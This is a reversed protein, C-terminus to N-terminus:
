PTPGQFRSGLAHPPKLAIDRFSHPFPNVGLIAWGVAIYGILWYGHCVSRHNFGALIGLAHWAALGAALSLAGGCM